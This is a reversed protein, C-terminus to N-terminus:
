RKSALRSVIEEAGPYKVHTYGAERAIRAGVAKLGVEMLGKVAQQTVDKAAGKLVDKVFTRGQNIDRDTLDKLKKEMELRSLKQALEADSMTKRRAVDLRMQQKQAKDTGIRGGEPTREGPKTKPPAQAEGRAERMTTTVDYAKGKSDYMRETTRQPKAQTNRQPQPTGGAARTVKAQEKPSRQRDKPQTKPTERSAKKTGQIPTKQQYRGKIILGDPGTERRVGWRMGLIGYHKLSEDMLNDM